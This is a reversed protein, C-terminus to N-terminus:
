RGFVYVAGSLPASQDTQAGNVGMAGSSEALAGAALTRGDSSSAVSVGFFSDARANSAKVYADQAWGPSRHRFIYAAGSLRQSNTSEDANFGIGAGAENFAGVFLTEGDDSLAMALGFTDNPDANSAKVFAEQALVGGM